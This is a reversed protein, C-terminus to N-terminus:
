KVHTHTFLHEQCYEYNGNCKSCFRFEMTPDDSETKGCVACKHKTIGPPTIKVSRKFDNRRKVEKPRLHMLRGGSFWFIAFTLLSATIAFFLYINGNVFASIAEFALWGGYVIGLWKMKLPIIFMFLVVNDPFTAAFALLISMNIYYTSFSFAALQMEFGVDGTMYPTNMGMKLEFLVFAYSLFAAIIMLLLGTFIYLNYKYEGWVREMTTGISYYFYLMILVFFLNSETPPILIWTVIRWIQGRLILHPNLTLMNLIGTGIPAFRLIYGIIYCIILVLTLNKIAYKGFKKEFNSM